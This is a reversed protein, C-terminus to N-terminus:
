STLITPAPRSRLTFTCASVPAIMGYALAEAWDTKLGDSCIMAFKRWFGPVGGPNKTARLLRWLAIVSATTREAIPLGSEARGM